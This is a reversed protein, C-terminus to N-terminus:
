YTWEGGDYSRVGILGTTQVARFVAALSPSQATATLRHGPVLAKVTAGEPTIKGKVIMIM